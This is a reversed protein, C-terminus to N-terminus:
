PAGASADLPKAPDQREQCLRVLADRQVGRLSIWRRGAKMSALADDVDSFDGRLLLYAAATTASRGHGVACHVYLKHGKAAEAEMWPVADRLQKQTPPFGDLAEVALYAAQERLVRPEALESTCDVVAWPGLPEFDARDAEVLRRGVYLGPAVENWPDESNLHRWLRWFFALGAFNFWNIPWAWLAHQGDRGRGFPATSNSGYALAVGILGFAVAWSTWSFPGEPMKTAVWAVSGLLAAFLPRIIV